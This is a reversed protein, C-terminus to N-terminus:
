KIWAGDNGLKYGGIQTNKVMAGNDQLYYYKGNVDKIWGAQMIGESNLYYWNGSTNIWGRQMGGNSDLYYWKGSNFLWGTAMTGDAQLYYSKGTNKDYFWTNKLSNGASDNYKWGNNDFVWQNYKANISTTDKEVKGVNINLTYIRQKNNPEDQIKIIVKNSGQKLDVTDKYNDVDETIKDNIKVKYESKAPEATIDVQSTDEDLNINYTRKNEDVDIRKDDVKIYNLYIDDQTDKNDLSDERNINLIYTRQKDHKSDKVKIIIPNKGKNLDVTQKYDNGKNAIGGDIIVEYMDSDPFAGITIKGISESVNIDYNTTDKSFNITGNSLSINGLYIDDQDAEGRIINLTYIKYDDDNSVKVRVTNNGKELSIVKKYVNNESKDVFDDNISIAVDESKPKLTIKIEDTDKDVKVDYYFTDQDFDIDSKNLSINKLYVSETESAYVKSGMALGSFINFGYLGNICITTLAISVIQGIRKNM